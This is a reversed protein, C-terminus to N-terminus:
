FPAENGEFDFLKGSDSVGLEEIVDLLQLAAREPDFL